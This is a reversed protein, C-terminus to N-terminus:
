TVVRAAVNAVARLGDRQASRHPIPLSASGAFRLVRDLTECRRPPVPDAKNCWLRQSEPVESACITVAM